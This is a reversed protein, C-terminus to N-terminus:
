NYNKSKFRYIIAKEILSLKFILELIKIKKIKNYKKHYIIRSENLIEYQKKISKISKNISTSHEHNYEINSILINKYGKNKLKHTLIREECYLFVDEDLYDIEKIVNSPIMFFSGPLVDVFNIEKNLEENSYLCRDGIIKKLVISSSLIDDKLNPLKWAPNAKKNKEKIRPAVLGIDEYEDYINIMKNIIGEKFIVDPNSIIIYKPNFMKIAYKIGYNNGYSYGGNKYTKIVHVKDSRYKILKEYSGDNSNNDVVVIKDLDSFKNSMNIFKSTTQFDRYNLVILCSKIMNEGDLRGIKIM